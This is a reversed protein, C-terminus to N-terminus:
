DMGEMAARDAGVDEDEFLRSEMLGNSDQYKGDYTKLVAGEPRHWYLQAIRDGAYVRIPQAVTIELTWRGRFGIDGFGATAHIFIGLRGISSRGECMPVLNHNETYEETSALYVAGPRLVVGEKPINMRRIRNPRRTDLVIENYVAIEDGLHVDYSNPGLCRADYPKIVINGVQRQIEIENATLM